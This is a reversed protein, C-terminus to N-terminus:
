SIEHESHSESGLMWKINDKTKERDELHGREEDFKQLKENNRWKRV